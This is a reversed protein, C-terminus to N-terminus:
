GEQFRIVTTRPVAVVRERDALILDVGIPFDANWEARRTLWARDLGTVALRREGDVGPGRLVLDLPGSGLASVTLVLTAGQEPMMLTGIRPAFDEAPAQGGDALVFAADALEVHRVGLMRWLREDLRQAHDHLPTTADLLAALVGVLAPEAGTHEALDVVEGPYAFASLLARYIRQQPLPTWIADLTLM